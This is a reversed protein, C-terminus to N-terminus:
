ICTDTAPRYLNVCEKIHENIIGANQTRRKWGKVKEHLNLIYSEKMYIRTYRVLRLHAFTEINYVTLLLSTLLTTNPYYKPLNGAPTDIM